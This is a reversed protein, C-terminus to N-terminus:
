LTQRGERDYKVYGGIAINDSYLATANKSAEQEGEGHGGCLSCAVTAIVTAGHIRRRKHPLAEGNPGAHGPLPDYRDVTEVRISMAWHDSNSKCDLKHDQFLIAFPEVAAGVIAKHDCTTRIGIAVLGDAMWGDQQVKVINPPATETGRFKNCEPCRIM